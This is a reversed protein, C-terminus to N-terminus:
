DIEYIIGEKNIRVLFTILFFTGNDNGYKLTGDQSLSQVLGLGFMTKKNIEFNSKLGIGNDHIFIKLVKDELSIAINIKPNSTDSFAHKICNQILENLILGLQTAFDMEIFIDELDIHIKLKDKLYHEEMLLEVLEKVYHSINISTLSRSSEKYLFRHILGIANIRDKINELVEKTDERSIARSQRNILSTIELLNNKTRHNLENMLNNLGDRENILDKNKREISRQTRKLSENLKKLKVNAIKENKVKRKVIFIIIALFFFSLFLIWNNLISSLKKEIQEISINNKVKIAEINNTAEEKASKIKREAVAKELKLTNTLSDLTKDNKERILQIEGKTKNEFLKIRNTTAAEVRNVQEKALDVQINALRRTKKIYNNMKTEEEEIIVKAEAKSKRIKEKAEAEANKVREEAKAKASKVKEDAETEANRVKEDAEQKKAKNEIIKYKKFLFFDLYMGDCMVRNLRKSGKDHIKRIKKTIEKVKDSAKRIKKGLSIHEREREYLEPSKIKEEKIKKELLLIDKKLTSLLLDLDSIDTQIVGIETQLKEKIKNFENSTFSNKRKLRKGRKNVLYCEESEEFANQISDLSIIEDKLDSNPIYGIRGKEINEILFRDNKLLVFVENSQGFVSNISVIFIIFYKMTRNKKCFFLLELYFPFHLFLLM